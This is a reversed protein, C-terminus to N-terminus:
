TPPSSRGSGRRARPCRPPSPTVRRRTRCCTRRSVPGAPRVLKHSFGEAGPQDDVAFGFGKLGDLFEDRGTVPLFVTVAPLAAARRAGAAVLDAVASVPKARDLWKLAGGNELADLGDLMQRASAPDAAKALTRFQSLLDGASKVTVTVVQAGGAEGGRAAALAVVCVGACRWWRRNAM